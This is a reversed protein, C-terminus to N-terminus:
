AVNRAPRWFRYRLLVWIAQVGHWWRIKKGEEISRPAYSIPVEVIETGARALKATVEPCFEFGTCQLDLRTLLDSRVMKYCTPEDTISLGYLLNSIVTLVRGGLQFRRYTFRNDGNLTRSGFVAGVGNRMLELMPVFDQPDYELDGDQIVIVDATAHEIGTRIAAGKGSNKEHKLYRIRGNFPELVEQTADTSGDDVVVVESVVPVALVRDVIETITEAENYAPIVVCLSPHGNRDTM